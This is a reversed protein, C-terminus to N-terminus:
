EEIIDWTRTKKNATGRCRQANRSACEAGDCRLMITSCVVCYLQAIGIAIRMSHNASILDRVQSKAITILNLLTYVNPQALQPDLSLTFRSSLADHHTLSIKM